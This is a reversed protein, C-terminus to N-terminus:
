GGFTVEFTATWNNTPTNDWFCFRYRRKERPASLVRGARQAQRM